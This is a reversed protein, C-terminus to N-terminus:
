TLVTSILPLLLRKPTVQAAWYEYDGACTLTRPHPVFSIQESVPKVLGPEVDVDGPTLRADLAM